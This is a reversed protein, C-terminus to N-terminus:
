KRQLHHQVAYIAAQVRDRLHLTNLIKSVYNKVTGETFFLEEAIERNSYGEAIMCLIEYEKENLLSLEQEPEPSVDTDRLLNREVLMGITDSSFQSVGRYALRIAEALDDKPIDKLLYGNAGAKIAKVIYDDNNFTTLMIIRIEKNLQRIQRTAEIGGLGPMRIDMLVVDAPTQQLVDMAEQGDAATGIISFDEKIELLAKIGDRVLQQDDVILVRIKDNM